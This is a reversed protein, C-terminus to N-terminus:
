IEPNNLVKIHDKCWQTVATNISKYHGKSYFLGWTSRGESQFNEQDVFITGLIITAHDGTKDIFRHLHPVANTYVEARCLLVLFVGIEKWWPFKAYTRTLAKRLYRFFDTASDIDRVHEPLEVVACGYRTLMIRPTLFCSICPIRDAITDDRKRYGFDYLATELAEVLDEYASAM